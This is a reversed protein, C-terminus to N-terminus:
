VFNCEMITEFEFNFTKPFFIYVNSAASFCSFFVCLSKEGGSIGSSALYRAAVSCANCEVPLFISFLM